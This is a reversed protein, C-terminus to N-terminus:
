SRKTLKGRLLDSLKYDAYGSVILVGGLALALLGVFRM